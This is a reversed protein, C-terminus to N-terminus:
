QGSMSIDLHMCLLHVVHKRDEWHSSFGPFFFRVFFLSIFGPDDVYVCINVINWETPKGHNMFYSAISAILSHTVHLVHTDHSCRETTMHMHLQAYAVDFVNKM